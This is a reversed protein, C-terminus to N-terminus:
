KVKFNPQSLILATLFMPGFLLLYRDAGSLQRGMKQNTDLIMFIVFNLTLFVKMLSSHSFSISIQKAFKQYVSLQKCVLNKNEKLLIACTDCPHM